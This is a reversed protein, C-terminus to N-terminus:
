SKRLAPRDAHSPTPSETCLLNTNAVNEFEQKVNNNNEDIAQEIERKCFCMQSIHVVCGHNLTNKYSDLNPIESTSMGLSSTVDLNHFICFYNCKSMLLHLQQDKM